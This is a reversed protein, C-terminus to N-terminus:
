SAKCRAKLPTQCIRSSNGRAHSPFLRTLRLNRIKIGYYKSEGAKLLHPHTEHLPQGFQLEAAAVSTTSAYPRCQSHPAERRLACKTSSLTIRTASQRTCRRAAHLCLLMSPNHSWLALLEVIRPATEIGRLKELWLWDCIM